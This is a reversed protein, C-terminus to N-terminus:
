AQPVDGGAPTEGGEAKPAEAAPAVPTTEAPKEAVECAPCLTKTADETLFQGQCKTCTKTM